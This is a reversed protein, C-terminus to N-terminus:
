RTAISQGQDHPTIVSTAASGENGEDDFARVTITYERGDLDNGNRSAQLSITFSYTGDRKIPVSGKPQVSRYKDEVEYTATIADPDSDEDTIMGTITVPVLKGNPPWLTAPTATITIVPLSIPIPTAIFGHEGTADGFLGVIQGSDNIGYANTYLSGPVDIPSFSGGTYVFTRAGTTTAFIGVVQSGDNIGTAYTQQSAGPVDIPSFSGGTYVYGHVAHGGTADQFSGVIQGSDNIGQAVTFLSGPVDIPSFSGGTYVFGRSTGYPPHPFGPIPFGGTGVIQGANNIGWVATKFAGPVDIRTFSYTQAGVSDSAGLVMWTLVGVLLLARRLSKDQTFTRYM